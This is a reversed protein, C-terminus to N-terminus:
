RTDMERLLQLIKPSAPNFKLGKALSARAAASDGSRFQAVALNLRAPELVPNRELASKWLRMSEELRGEKALCIGLNVAAANQTADAAVIRAYLECAQGEQGMRDYLQALRSSVKVDDPASANANRLLEFARMGWARNDDRIAVTAYALGLERGTSEFGHFPVLVSEAPIGAPIGATADPRPRKLISHNTFAAHQVTVAPTRPMHCAICNDSQEMRAPRSATCSASQHCSLCRGRYFAAKVNEAVTRHPDHCTGCWLKGASSRRCASRALQEFHGNVTTERDAGEVIYVVVSDSLRDGPRYPRQTGGRAIEVAGPLHCQACVSDRRPGDLKAPNVIGPGGSRKGAKMRTIHEEGAGHCRECTVGPQLFPRPAYGNSTGAIPQVGSAHCKLCGPEVERVLNVEKTREFGPSLEWRAASSYYSVPAQFLFGEIFTLYSRGVAGSGVFYDLRRQGEIGAQRFDFSLVSWQKSVHYQAGGEPGAFTANDFSESFTGSGARGSTRAMGTAPYSQSIKAHCPACDQNELALGRVAGMLLTIAVLVLVTGNHEGSQYLGFWVRMARAARGHRPFLVEQSASRM